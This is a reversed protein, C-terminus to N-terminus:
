TVGLGVAGLLATTEWKEGIEDKPESVVDVSGIRVGQVVVPVVRRETPPAILAAFWAPAPASVRSLLWAPRSTKPAETEGGPGPVVAAPRVELVNDAADRVEIRVHRARRLQSSLDALFRDAPTERQALLVAEKVWLEALEMSAAIEVRTASRANFISVAGAVAAAIVEILIFLILLQTRLTRARWYAHAPVMSRDSPVDTPVAGATVVERM